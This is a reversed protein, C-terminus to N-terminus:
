LTCINTLIQCVAAIQVSYYSQYANNTMIKYYYVCLKVM